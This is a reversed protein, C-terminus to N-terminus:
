LERIPRDDAWAIIDEVVQDFWVRYNDTTVYGIHPLLLTNGLSRLPHQTPLPEVDYVDLGAGAICRESLAAILAPEDVIPGRSTNILYASPKMLALEAAGIIGRSSESLPMHVTVVDSETFLTVKDVARVGYPDARHQTLNPSWAIVTMGFAQALHAVPVGLRGLGVIGVTNGALGPGITHQWGGARIGADEHAFNRMLAIMMGITIEPMASSTGTTGCVTIGLKRAAAVDIAANKAGTTVLLRLRPLQALLSAPFPTRERMAVVVDSAALRRVLEAEDDVHETIVEVTFRGRVKTWDTSDRAIDQYDDLITIVPVAHARLSGDERVSWRRDRACGAAAALMPRLRHTWIM